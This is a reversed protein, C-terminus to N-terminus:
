TTTPDYCSGFLNLSLSMFDNYMFGCYCAFFGMFFVFYRTFAFGEFATGKLKNNFLVLFLGFLMLLGGHGIDGFMVGFLFPFTM